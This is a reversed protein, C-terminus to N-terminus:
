GQVCFWFDATETPSTTPFFRIRWVGPMFLYLPTVRYNGGGQNTIQPTVSSGHGHNPMLTQVSLSMNAMPQGSADTVRLTWTDNGRAPPAPDSEVLVFKLTGGASTVTLNPAYAFVRPDDQCNVVDGADPTSSGGGCGAILAAALIFAFPVNRPQM